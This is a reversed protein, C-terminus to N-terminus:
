TVGVGLRRWAAVTEPLEHASARAPEFTVAAGLQELQRVSERHAPRERAILLIPLSHLPRDRSQWGRVHPVGADIAVVGALTEPMLVALALCLEGGQGAGIVVPAGWREGVDQVFQELAGAADAFTAPEITGDINDVYWRRGVVHRGRYVVRPPEVLLTRRSPTGAAAIAVLTDEDVGAGPLVVHTDLTTAGDNRLEYVLGARQLWEV